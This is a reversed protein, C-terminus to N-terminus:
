AVICGSRHKAPMSVVVGIFFVLLGSKAGLSNFGSILVLFPLLLRHGAGPASRWCWRFLAGLGAIFPVFGSLGLLLFMFLWFNEVVRTGSRLAEADGLYIMESRDLGSVLDIPTLWTLWAIPSLRAAASPDWLGLEAVRDFGGAASAVGALLIGCSSWVLLAMIEGRRVRQMMGEAAEGSVLRLIATAITVALALRGGYAVVALVMPIACAAALRSGAALALQLGLFSYTAGGLPHDFLGAPRFQSRGEINADAYPIIHQGALFEGVTLFANITMVALIARMLLRRDAPSLDDLVYACAVAPLLNNLLVISAGDSGHVVANIVITAVLGMAACILDRPWGTPRHLMDWGLRLLGSLFAAYAFPALKVIVSGGEDTYKLGTAALM